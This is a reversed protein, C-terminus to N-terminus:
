DGPPGDGVSASATAASGIDPTRAELRALDEAEAADFREVLDCWIPNAMAVAKNYPGPGATQTVAQLEQRWRESDPIAADLWTSMWSYAKTESEDFEEGDAERVFRQFTEIETTYLRDLILLSTLAEVIDDTSNIAHIARKRESECLRMGTAEQLLPVDGMDTEAPAWGSTRMAEVAKERPTRPPTRIAAVRAAPNTAAEAAARAKRRLGKRAGVVARGELEQRVGTSPNAVRWGRRASKKVVTPTVLQRATKAPRTVARRATKVPKPAFTRWM